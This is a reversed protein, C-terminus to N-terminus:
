EKVRYFPVVRGYRPHSKANRSVQEWGALRLARGALQKTVRNDLSMRDRGILEWAEQICTWERFESVGELSTSVPNDLAAAMEGAVAEEPSEIRKSEQKAKAIEAARGRMFLPLDGNMCKRVRAATWRLYIDFAEGWLDEIEESLRQTDITTAKCEIPWFRRGGTPDRLYDSDNTSGIMICRRPYEKANREYALRGTDVTRSVVDKLTNTEAKSFGQLEPIELIWRDKLAEIVRNNDRLDASFEGSWKGGLIRIFTSKGAGQAGELIPVFDFKHGPEIARAVAGVMTLTAARRHYADDPCGLYDIFLKHVRRGYPIPNWQPGKWNDHCRELWEVLPNFCNTAAITKIAADVDAASFNVGYGARRSLDASFVKRIDTIHIDSLPKGDETERGRLQWHPGTFNLAERVRKSDEKKPDSRKKPEAILVVTQRMENFGFVGSLRPDHQLLLVLNAMTSKIASTKEAVDLLEHWKRKCEQAAEIKKPAKEELIRSFESNNLKNM